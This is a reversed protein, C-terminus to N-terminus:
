DRWRGKDCYVIEQCEVAGELAGQSSWCEGSLSWCWGVVGDDTIGQLM